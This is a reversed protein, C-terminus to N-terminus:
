AKQQVDDNRKRGRIRKRKEGKKKNKRKREKKFRRELMHQAPAPDNQVPRGEGVQHKRGDVAVLAVDRWLAVLEVRADAVLREALQGHGM